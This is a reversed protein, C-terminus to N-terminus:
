LVGRHLKPYIYTFLVFKAKIARRIAVKDVTVFWSVSTLYGITSLAM